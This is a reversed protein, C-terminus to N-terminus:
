NIRYIFYDGQENENGDYSSMFHGRGDASIAQGAFDEIDGSKEILSVIADNSGECLPQLSEFVCEPLECYSSLFSANFAWATDKIYATAATTAEDDDGIAYEQSGLSYVTLGYHDYTKETLEGPDCDLYKALETQKEEYTETETTKM